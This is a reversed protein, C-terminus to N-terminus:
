PGMVSLINTEPYAAMLDFIKGSITTITDIIAPHSCEGSSYYDELSCLIDEMEEYTYLNDEVCTKFYYPHREEELIMSLRRRNWMNQPNFNDRFMSLMYRDFFAASISIERGTKQTILGPENGLSYIRVPYVWYAASSDHGDAVCTGNALRDKPLGSEDWVEAPIYKSHLYIM